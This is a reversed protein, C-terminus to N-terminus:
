CRVTSKETWRYGRGRRSGGAGAVQRAFLVERRDARAECITRRRHGVPSSRLPPGYGLVGGFRMARSRAIGSLDRRGMPAAQKVRVPARAPRAYRSRVVHSRVPVIPRWPRPILGPEWPRSRRDIREYRRRRAM